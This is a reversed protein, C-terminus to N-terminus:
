KKESTEPAIVDVEANKLAKILAERNTKEPDIWAAVYGDKYSVVARDVGEITGVARYASYACGKCDLGGVVIREQKLQEPKLKNLPTVGFGGRSINRLQDNIREQVQEPKKDKFQKSDADYAFTVVATDFNVEALKVEAPVDTDRFVLTGAQKRLDDVRDPQFLGTLRYQVKTEAGFSTHASLLLLAFSLLYKM